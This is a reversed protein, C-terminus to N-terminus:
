PTASTAPGIALRRRDRIVWLLCAIQSEWSNPRRLNGEQEITEGSGPM